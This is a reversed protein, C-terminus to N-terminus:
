LGGPGRGPNLVGAADFRHKVVEPEGARPELGPYFARESPAAARWATELEEHAEFFSGRRILELGNEFADPHM